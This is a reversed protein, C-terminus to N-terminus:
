KPLPLALFNVTGGDDVTVVVGHALRRATRIATPVNANADWKVSGISVGGPWETGWTRRQAQIERELEVVRKRCAVAERQSIRKHAM